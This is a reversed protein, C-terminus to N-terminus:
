LGLACETHLRGRQVARLIHARACLSWENIDGLQTVLKHAARYDAAATGKPGGFFGFPCDESDASRALLL